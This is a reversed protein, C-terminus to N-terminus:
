GGNQGSRSMVEQVETWRENIQAPTMRKIDAITLQPGGAGGMPLGGKKRDVLYPKSSALKRLAREASKDDGTDDDNLLAIADGPDRFNMSSALRQVRNIRREQDLTFENVSSSEEAAELQERLDAIEAEHERRLAEVDGSEQAKRQREARAEAKAKRAAQEAKNRRREEAAIRQRLQEVESPEDDESDSDDSDEDQDDDPEADDEVDLDEDDDPEPDPTNDGDDDGDSGFIPTYRNRLWTQYAEEISKEFMPEGKRQRNLNFDAVM